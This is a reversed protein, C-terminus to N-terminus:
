KNITISTWVSIEFCVNGKAEIQHRAQLPSSTCRFTKMKSKPLCNREELGKQM